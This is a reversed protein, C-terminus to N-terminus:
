TASGNHALSNFESLLQAAMPRTVARGRALAERDLYDVLRRGTGLSREMRTALYEIVNVDVNLQRDMFLKVLVARMLADDPAGIEVVPALRLRSLLDPTSIQWQSPATRATLLISTGKERALNLLHFLAREPLSTEVTKDLWLAPASALDPATDLTLGELAFARADAISSWITGLHSKGAGAPGVMVLTQAPWDPWKEIWDWAQQNSGSVLFDDRGFQPEFPLEFPIQAASNGTGKGSTM